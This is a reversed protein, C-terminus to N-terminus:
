LTVSDLYALLAEKYLVSGKYRDIDEGWGRVASALRGAVEGDGEKVLDEAKTMYTRIGFVIAGSKPLRRLTQRESRLRLTRGEVIPGAKMKKEDDSAMGKAVAHKVYKVGLGGERDVDEEGNQTVGWGLEEADVIGDERAEEPSVVQIFYNNRTVPKDVGMKQFFRAM